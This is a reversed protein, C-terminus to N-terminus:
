AIRLHIKQETVVQRVKEYTRSLIQSIYSEHVGIQRAIQSQPLDDVFRLICILRDRDCLGRMLESLGEYGDRQRIKQQESPDPLDIPTGSNSYRKTLSERKETRGIRRGGTLMLGQERMADLMAGDVRYQVWSELKVGLEPKFGPLMKWVALAASQKLDDFPIVNCHRYMAQARRHIMPLCKLLLSEQEDRTM